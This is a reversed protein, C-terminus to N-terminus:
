FARFAFRRASRCASTRGFCAGPRRGPLHDDDVPHRAAVMAPGELGGLFGLRRRDAGCSSSVRRHVLFLALVLILYDYARSLRAKEGTYPQPPIELTTSTM